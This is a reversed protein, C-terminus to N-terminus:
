AISPPHISKQRWLLILLLWQLDLRLSRATHFGMSLANLFKERHLRKLMPWEMKWHTGCGSGTPRVANASLVVCRRAPRPLWHARFTSLPSHPQICNHQAPSPPLRIALSYFPCGSSLCLWCWASSWGFNGTTIDNQSLSLLPRIGEM